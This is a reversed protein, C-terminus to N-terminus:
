GLMRILIFLIFTHNTCKSFMSKCLISFDVGQEQEEVLRACRGGCLIPGRHELTGQPGSGWDNVLFVNVLLNPSLWVNGMMPLHLHRLQFALVSGQVIIQKLLMYTCIYRMSMDVHPHNDTYLSNQVFLPTHSGIALISSYYAYIFYSFSRKQNYNATTNHIMTQQHLEHTCLKVGTAPSHIHSSQVICSQISNVLSMIVCNICNYPYVYTRM